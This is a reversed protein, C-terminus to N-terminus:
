VSLHCFIIVGKWIMEWVSGSTLGCCCGFKKVWSIPLEIWRRSSNLLKSWETQITRLDDENEVCRQQGITNPFNTRVSM